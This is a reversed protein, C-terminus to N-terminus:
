PHLPVVELELVTIVLDHAPILPNHEHVAGIDVTKFALHGGRVQCSQREQSPIKAFHVIIAPIPQAHGDTGICAVAQSSSVVEHVPFQFTGTSFFLFSCHATIQVVEAIAQPSLDTKSTDGEKRGIIEVGQDLLVPAGRKMRNSKAEYELIEYV